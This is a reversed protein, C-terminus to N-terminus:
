PNVKRRPALGLLTGITRRLAARGSAIVDLGPRANTIAARPDVREDLADSLSAQPELGLWAAVAGQVDTDILLVRQGQSALVHGLNIVLSTKGVGGKVNAVATVRAM